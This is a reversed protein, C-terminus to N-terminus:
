RTSRCCWGAKAAALVAGQIEGAKNRSHKTYRRWATEIFAAPVGISQESGGRELVFDLDHRNGLADTWTVKRTRRASRAGKQDLYLGHESAFDALLPKLAEELVLGIIQGFQHSPSQAM